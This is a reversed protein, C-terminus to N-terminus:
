LLIKQMLVLTLRRGFKLGVEPMRATETFGCAEHLAISRENGAEIAGVMVRKGQARACAELAQLLARGVGGRQLEPAVYLSHEVTERYGEHPRFVGYSGYGAVRGELRAVLVPRRDALRERRWAVFQELTKEQENWLAFGTRIEHNQIDLIAPLDDETSPEVRLGAPVSMPRSM